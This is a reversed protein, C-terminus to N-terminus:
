WKSVELEAIFMQVGEPSVCEKQLHIRVIVPTIETTVATPIAAITEVKSQVRVATSPQIPKQM